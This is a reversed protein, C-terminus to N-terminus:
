KELDLEFAVEETCDKRIRVLVTGKKGQCKKGKRKKKKVTNKPIDANGLLNHNGGFCVSYKM